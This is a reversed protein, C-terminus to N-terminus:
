RIKPYSLGIPTCFVSYHMLIGYILLILTAKSSSAMSNTFCLCLVNLDRQLLFLYDNRYWKIYKVFLFLNRDNKLIYLSCVYNERLLKQKELREPLPKLHLDVWFMIRMLSFLRVYRSGSLLHVASSYLSHDPRPQTTQAHRLTQSVTNRGWLVEKRAWAGGDPIRIISGGRRLVARRVKLCLSIFSVWESRLSFHIQAPHEDVYRLELSKDQAASQRPNKDACQLGQGGGEEEEEEERRWTVNLISHVDDLRGGPIITCNRGWRHM